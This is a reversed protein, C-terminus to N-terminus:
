PLKTFGAAALLAAVDDADLPPEAALEALREAGGPVFLLLLRAAALVRASRPAGAPLEAHDEPGLLRPEGAITLEIVGSLVQVIVRERTGVHRPMAAGAAARVDLLAYAGHSTRADVIVDVEFPVQTSAAEIVGVISGGTAGAPLAPAGWPEGRPTM